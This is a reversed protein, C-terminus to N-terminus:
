SAGETDPRGKLPPFLARERVRTRKALVDRAQVLLNSPVFIWDLWGAADTLWRKWRSM